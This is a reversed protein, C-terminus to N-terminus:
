NSTLRESLIKNLPFLPGMVEGDVEGGSEILKTLNLGTKSTFVYNVEM